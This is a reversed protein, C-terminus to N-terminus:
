GKAEINSELLSDVEEKLTTPSSEVSSSLEGNVSANLSQTHIVSPVETIGPQQVGKHISKVMEQAKHIFKHNCTCRHEPLIAGNVNYREYGAGGLVLTKGGNNLFFVDILMPCLGLRALIGGEEASAYIM